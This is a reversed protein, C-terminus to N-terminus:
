KNLGRARIRKVIPKGRKDRNYRCKVASDIFLIYSLQTKKPPNSMKVMVVIWSYRYGASDRDSGFGVQQLATKTPPSQDRSVGLGLGSKVFFLCFLSLVASSHM